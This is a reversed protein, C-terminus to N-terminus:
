KYIEIIWDAIEKREFTVHLTHPYGIEKSWKICSVYFRDGNPFNFDTSTVKTKGSKDVGHDFTGEYVKDLNKVAVSIDNLIIDKQKLCGQLNNPYFIQGNISYIIHNQDKNKAHFRVADYM